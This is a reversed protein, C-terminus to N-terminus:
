FTQEGMEEYFRSFDTRDKSAAFMPAGAIPVREVGSLREVVYGMWTSKSFEGDNVVSVGLEAQRRVIGAVADRLQEDLAREDHPEGLHRAVITEQLAKPMHLAGTHSTLIRDTSRKM